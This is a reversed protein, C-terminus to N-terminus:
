LTGATNVQIRWEKDVPGSRPQTPDLLQISPSIAKRLPQLINEDSQLRSLAWGVRKIVSDRATRIAYEVLRSTDIIGISESLIGISEGIGGFNRVSLFCELVSREMDTIPVKFQNDVWQDEIGFFLKQKVTMFTYEIGEIKWTHKGEKEINKERMSPTTVARTVMVHIKRPIVDTLGHFNLASWCCIASPEVLRAAIAFPHVELTGQLSGTCSYLGRKIRIIWGADVLEKLLRRFYMESIPLSEAASRAESTSFIHKGRASLIRLLQVGANVSYKGKISM